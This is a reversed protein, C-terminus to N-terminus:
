KLGILGIRKSVRDFWDDPSVKPPPPMPMPHERMWRLEKERRATERARRHGMMEDAIAAAGDINHGNSLAAAAFLDWPDYSM